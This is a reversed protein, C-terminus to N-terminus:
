SLEHWKLTIVYLVAGGAEMESTYKALIPETKQIISLNHSLGILVALCPNNLGKNHYM